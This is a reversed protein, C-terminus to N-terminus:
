RSEELYQAALRLIEPDDKAHGLLLNCTRHLLGRVRGTKHCHDIYPSEDAFPQKCLRCRGNHIDILAEYASPSLGYRRTRQYILAKENNLARAAEDRQDYWRKASLNICAKCRDKYGDRHRRYKSFCSLVKAEGCKTCQKLLVDGNLM